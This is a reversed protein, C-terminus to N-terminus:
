KSYLEVILQENIPFSMESRMPWNKIKGGFQSPDRELWAPLSLNKQSEEWWKQYFPNQRSDEKLVLTDGPKLQYSPVNVKKGNVLIHQHLVMQRAAAKSTTFGMRHVVNDLRTELLRLLNEGTLGKLRSAIEFYRRFPREGISSLRRLKQKERLRKSYESLKKNRHSKGHQGPIEKRKDLICKTFCKEGKLFLKTGERRCLKCVPGIYRSVLYFRRSKYGDPNQPVADTTRCRLSM